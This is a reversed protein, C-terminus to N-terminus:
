VSLGIERMQRMNQPMPFQPRSPEAFPVVSTAVVASHPQSYSQVRFVAMLTGGYVAKSTAESNFPRNSTMDEGAETAPPAKYVLSEYGGLVDSIRDVGM